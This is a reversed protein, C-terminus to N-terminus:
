FRRRGADVARSIEAAIQARSRRFSQADPTTVNITVHAGQSAVGVGLRGDDGRSLPLIAEPGAEGMVGTASSMPFQVAGSVVGGKAFARVAGASPAGGVAGRLVAGVAGSLGASLGDSVPALASRLATRSLDRGLGRAVDSLSGAGLIADEMAGRFSTRMTRSFGSVAKEADRLAGAAESFGRSRGDSPDVPLDTM